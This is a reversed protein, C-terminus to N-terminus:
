HLWTRARRARTFSHNIQTLQKYLHPSLVSHASLLLSAPPFPLSFSQNKAFGAAGVLAGPVFNKVLEKPEKEGM